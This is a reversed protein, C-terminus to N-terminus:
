HLKVLRFVWSCGSRLQESVATRLKWRHIRRQDVQNFFVMWPKLAPKLWKEADMSTSWFATSWRSFWAVMVLICWSSGVHQDSSTDQQHIILIMNTKISPYCDNIPMDSLLVLDTNHDGIAQWSKKTIGVAGFSCRFCDVVRGFQNPYGQGGVSQLGPRWGNPTEQRWDEIVMSESSLWSNTMTM